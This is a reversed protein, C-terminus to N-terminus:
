WSYSTGHGSFTHTSTAPAASYSVTKAVAPAARVGLRARTDTGTDAETRWRPAPPGRPPPRPSARAGYAVNLRVFWATLGSRLRALPPSAASALGSGYGLGSGYALGSGYGLAPATLWVPPRLRIRLRLHRRRSRHRRQRRPPPPWAFLLPARYSVAPPRRLVRRPAAAWASPPPAYSVRSRRLLVAPGRGGFAPAASTYTVAAPAAAVRVAPRASTYTVGAPRRYALCPRRGRSPRASRPTPSARPAAAHLAGYTVAPAAPPSASPPRASTYTVGAPAGYAVATRRPPSRPLAPAGYAVGAAGYGVDNSSRSSSIRVSSTPTDVSKSYQSLVNQGGFGKVTSEHTHGVGGLADATATYTTYAAPGGARAAAVLAALLLVRASRIAAFDETGEEGPLLCRMFSM